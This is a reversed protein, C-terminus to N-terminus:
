MVFSGQILIDACSNWVQPTQECDYRFSLVYHGPTLDAPVQLKDIISFGFPKEGVGALGFGYLGPLPPTFQPGTCVGGAAPAGGGYGKCAPIPNRTWQSGAPHTGTNTRMAPFAKRTSEDPGYQVWQTDGAFKLVTKQFCEETLDTSGKAPKPCLRYSYGGGHNATIAWAAEVVSGATWVTPKTNGKLTRADPGHGYGGGACGDGKPNGVPCGQPNGGDVGCPSFVAATGPARWPHTRTWVSTPNPYTILPSNDAITPSGPILTYNSYWECACGQASEIEGPAKRGTCGARCQLGSTMGIKGDPDFWSPPSVLNGHASSGPLLAVFLSVLLVGM